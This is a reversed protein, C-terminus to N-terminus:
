IHTGTNKFFKKSGNNSSDFSIMQNCQSLKREGISYMSNHNISLHHIIDISKKSTGSSVNMQIQQFDSKRRVKLSTDMSGRSYLSQLRVKQEIVKKQFSNGMITYFFPNLMSNMYIFTHSLAKITYMLKSCVPFEKIFKLSFHILHIPFWCFCFLASVIGIM